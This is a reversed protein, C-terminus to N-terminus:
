AAAECLYDFETLLAFEEDAAVLLRDATFYDVDAIQERLVAKVTRVPVGSRKAIVDIAVEAGIYGRLLIPALREVPIRPALDPDDDASRRPPGDRSSGNRSRTAQRERPRAKPTGNRTAVPASPKRTTRQQWANVARAVQRAEAM